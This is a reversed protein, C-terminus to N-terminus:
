WTMLSGLNRRDQQEAVWWFIARRGDCFCLQSAIMMDENWGPLFLLLIHFASPWSIGNLPMVMGLKLLAQSICDSCPYGYGSLFLTTRQSFFCFIPIQSYTTISWIRRVADALLLGQSLVSGLVGTPIVRASSAGSVWWRVPSSCSSVSFAVLIKQSHSFGCAPTLIVSKGMLKCVCVYVCAFWNGFIHRRTHTDSLVKNERILISARLASIKLQKKRWFLTRAGMLVNQIFSDTCRSSAKWLSVHRRQSTSPHVQEPASTLRRAQTGPQHGLEM